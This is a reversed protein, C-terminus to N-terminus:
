KATVSFQLEPLVTEWDDRKIHVQFSEDNDSKKWRIIAGIEGKVLEKGAPPVFNRSMRGITRSHQDLLLWRDGELTLTVSDGVCAESISRLEPSGQRLRGAWSLDVLAMDPAVHTPYYAPLGGLEPTIHRWPCCEGPQPAFPHEGTALITLSGKARTMAVYFLRRPSDADEGKSPKAWDGDLIVVDRFELGKARHATM